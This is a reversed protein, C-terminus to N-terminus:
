NNRIATSAGVDTDDEQDDWRCRSELGTLALAVTVEYPGSHLNSALDSPAVTGIGLRVASGFAISRVLM